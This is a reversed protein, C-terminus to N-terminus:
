LSSAVVRAQARGCVGGLRRGGDEAVVGREDTLRMMYPPACAMYALIFAAFSAAAAAAAAPPSAAAEDEAALEPTLPPLAAPDFQDDAYPDFDQGLAEEDFAAVDEDAMDASPERAGAVEAEAEPDEFAGLLEEWFAEARTQAAGGSSSSSRRSKKRRKAGGRRGLSKGLDRELNRLTDKGGKLRGRVYKNELTIM